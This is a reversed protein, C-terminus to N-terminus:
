LAHPLVVGRGDLGNPSPVSLTRQPVVVRLEIPPHEEASPSSYGFEEFGCDAAASDAVPFPQEQVKHKMAEGVLAPGRPRDFAPQARNPGRVRGHAEVVRQLAELETEEGQIPSLPPFTRRPSLPRHERVM